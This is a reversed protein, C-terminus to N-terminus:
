MKDVASIIKELESLYLVLLDKLENYSLTKKNIKKKWILLLKESSINLEISVQAITDEKKFAPTKGRLRIINRLIHLVSNLNRYLLEYLEDKNKPNIKIYQLRLLILKSKLEQECQFRLNQSDIYIEKLEDKGYLCLYSEKMDLFEMPFTDLSTYIQEETLFLPTFNNFSYKKLLFRIKDLDNIDIKNLVVLLNVNSNKENFEGSVSSGYLIVSILNDEFSLKLNNLFIGIKKSIHEPLSAKFM